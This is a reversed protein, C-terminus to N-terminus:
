GSLIHTHDRFVTSVDRVKSGTWKNIEIHDDDTSKLLSTLNSKKTLPIDVEM